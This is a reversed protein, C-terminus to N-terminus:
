SGRGCSRSSISTASPRVLRVPRILLFPTLFAPGPGLTRGVALFCLGAVLLALGGAVAMGTNGPLAALWWSCVPMRWNFISTPRFGSVTWMPQEFEEKTAVYYGQGARVREIVNRFVDSDPKLEPKQPNESETPPLVFQTLSVFLCWALASGTVGVVALASPRSLGAFRSPFVELNEASM